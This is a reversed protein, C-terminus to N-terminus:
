ERAAHCPLRVEFRVGSGDALNAASLEGGHFGAIMRAVYLGLGLHPTEGGEGARGSVMSEFLREKLDEPLTPGRNEVALGAHSEGVFALVLRVASGPAAFDFANEVLKDLLQAMLDPAGEVWVPHRPLSLDLAMGPRAMRYGAVCEELLRGLDFREVETSALSQEMRNAESMRNLISSLRSVGAEARAIYTRSSDPLDEMHLNELSSRVVAIPTRLEHSLRSAMSELYGHHRGIRGMCQM